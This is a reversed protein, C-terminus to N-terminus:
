TSLAFVAEPIFSLESPLDFIKCSFSASRSLSISRNRESFAEKALNLSSLSFTFYLKQHRLSGYKTSCKTKTEDTSYL